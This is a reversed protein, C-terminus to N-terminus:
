VHIRLEPNDRKLSKLNKEDAWFDKDEQRWRMFERGPVHALLQYDSKNDQKFGETARALARIRKPATHKERALYNHFLGGERLARWVWEPWSCMKRFSPKIIIGPGRAPPAAPRPSSRAAARVDTRATAPQILGTM